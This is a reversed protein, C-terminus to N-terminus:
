AFTLRVSLETSSLDVLEVIVKGEADDVGVPRAVLDCGTFFVYMLQYLIRVDVNVPLSYPRCQSTFFVPLM